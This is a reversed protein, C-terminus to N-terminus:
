PSSTSNKLALFQAVDNCVDSNNSSAQRLALSAATDQAHNVLQPNAGLTLMTTVVNRNCRLAAEMLPTSGNNSSANINAGHQILKRLISIFLEETQVRDQYDPHQESNKNLGMPTHAALYHLATRGDSDSQSLNTGHEILYIANRGSTLTGNIENKLSCMLPNLGQGTVLNPNAGHTLMWEITSNVQMGKGYSIALMCMAPINGGCQACNIDAGQQILLSAMATNNSLLARYLDQTIASPTLPNKPATKRNEINKRHSDVKNLTRTEAPTTHVERTDSIDIGNANPVTQALANSAYTGDVFTNSIILMLAFFYKAHGIATSQM